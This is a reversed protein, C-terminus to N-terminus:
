SLSIRSVQLENVEENQSRIKKWVIYFWCSVTVFFIFAIVGACDLIFSALTLATYPLCGIILM